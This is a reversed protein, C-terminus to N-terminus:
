PDALDGRELHDTLKDQVTSQLTDINERIDHEECLFAAQDRRSQEHLAVIEQKEEDTSVLKTAATDEAMSTPKDRRGDSTQPPTGGAAEDLIRDEDASKLICEDIGDIKKPTPPPQADEPHRHEDMIFVLSLVIVSIM